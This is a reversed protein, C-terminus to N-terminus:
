NLAGGPPTGGQDSVNVDPGESNGQKREGDIGGGSPNDGHDVFVRGRPIVRGAASGPVSLLLSAAVALALAFFTHASPKDHM